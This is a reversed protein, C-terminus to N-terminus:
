VCMWRGPQRRGKKACTLIRRGGWTGNGPGTDNQPLTSQSQQWEVSSLDYTPIPIRGFIGHLLADKLSVITMQQPLLERINAVFSRVSQVAKSEIQTQRPNLAKLMMEVDTDFLLTGHSFMRGRSLYQANGSIKRGSAFIDSKGRLEAEVGLRRLTAVVPETFKAFNHLHKM